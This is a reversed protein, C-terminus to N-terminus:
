VTPYSTFKGTRRAEEPVYDTFLVGNLHDLEHQLVRAFLDDVALERTRGELDQYRIRIAEPRKVDGFVGPLSLCAEEALSKERSRWIIEPNALFTAPIDAEEYGVFFARTALGIQPAALGIGRASRMTDELNRMLPLLASGFEQVPAAQERLVPQEWTFVPVIM